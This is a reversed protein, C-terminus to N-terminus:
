ELKSGLAFAEWAPESPPASLGPWRRRKVRLALVSSLGVHPLAFDGGHDLTVDQAAIVAVLFVFGDFAKGAPPAHNISAMVKTRRLAALPVTVAIGAVILVPQSRLDVLVANGSPFNDRSRGADLGARYAGLRLFLRPSGRPNGRDWVKSLSRRRLKVSVFPGASDTDFSPSNPSLALSTVLHRLRLNSM